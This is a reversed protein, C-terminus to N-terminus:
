TGFTRGAWGRLAQPWYARDRGLPGPEGVAAQRPASAHSLHWALAAFVLTQRRVGTNQLRACLEKDESGWGIM